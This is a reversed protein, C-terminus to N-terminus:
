SIASQYEKILAELLADDGSKEAERIRARLTSLHSEKSLRQKENLLSLFTSRLSDKNGNEIVKLAQMYAKRAEDKAEEPINDLDIQINKQKSEESDSKTYSNKIFNYVLQHSELLDKPEESIEVILMPEYLLFGIIQENLLSEKTQKGEKAVTKIVRKRPASAKSGNVQTRLEAIPTRVIDAIRALWHEREVVAGILEVEPKLEDWFAQAGRPESTDFNKLAKRYYFEMISIPNKYLKKWASPDKQVVDDPDKGMKDPISIVEVQFQLKRALDIGKKVAAFGAADDDFCFILNETHRKLLNLQHETLATGSSAVVNEVEAKHSAIVDLNGEVIIVSGEQRIARKGEYLGYLLRGKHFLETEPTNVYKPAKDDKKLIRGTFGIVQGREDRIPVMLRGRFVDIYGQGSKKSKVLGAKKLEPGSYGKSKLTDHLLTWGDPAFGLKFKDVLDSNIGRDEVYKRAIEAEKHDKLLLHYFQAALTNLQKLNNDTKKFNPKEPLDVGAKDALIELAERFSMGEMDMVFSFIDGGKNCGFCHWIQKETSVHFSPTREQHFPCLAKYSGMGAKRLELYGGIVEAVDLRDKIQDKEDM